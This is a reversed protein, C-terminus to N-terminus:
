AWLAGLADDLEDFHDIIRGAGADRLHAVPHYGWSVGLTRVGASAGMQMDFSTDGIMVAADAEVGAEALATEVMSPHPKSPHFDATQATVFYRKLDHAAFLHELGRQAKGTAIGLLWGAAELRDLAARAGPYLQVAAEGGMEARMDVFAVRYAAVLRAVRDADAQPSLRTIAESLSLGVISLVEAREPPVEGLSDYGRQMAGVILAQSDVLTGDVDFIALKM